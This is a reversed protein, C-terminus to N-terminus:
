QKFVLMNMRTGLPLKVDCTTASEPCGASDEYIWVTWRGLGADYRPGIFMEYPSAHMQLSMFVVANPDGNLMPHDIVITGSCAWHKPIHTFSVRGSHVLGCGQDKMNAPTAELVFVSTPTNVGMNTVRLAGPGLRLATGSPGSGDAQVGAASPTAGQGVVGAGAGGDRSGSRGLVGAGLEVASGYVGVGYTAQGEVGANGSALRGRAGTAGNEGVVGFGAANATVGRAGAFGANRAEGYLGDTLTTATALGEVPARAAHSALAPSTPAILSPPSVPTLPAKYPPPVTGTAVDEATTRKTTQGHLDQGTTLVALAGVVLVHGAFRAM